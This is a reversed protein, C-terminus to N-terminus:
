PGTAPLGTYPTGIAPPDALGCRILEYEPVRDIRYKTFEYAHVVNSLFRRAGLPGRVAAMVSETAPCKLAAEAERIWGEDLYSPVWPHEKLIHAATFDSNAIVKDGRAMVSNYLRKPAGKANYVGHYTTVFPIGSLKAAMLGSWAPARSRAHIVTVGEERAIRALREANWLIVLPNKSGARM